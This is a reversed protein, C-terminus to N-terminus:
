SSMASHLVTLFYSVGSYNINNMNTYLGKYLALTRSLGMLSTVILVPFVLYMTHSLYHVGSKVVLRFWLKQICDITVSGCLCILPYVPFLFREEQLLYNVYKVTAKFHMPNYLYSYFMYIRRVFRDEIPLSKYPM